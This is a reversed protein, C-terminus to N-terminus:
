KEYRDKILYMATNRTTKQMIEDEYYDNMIIKHRQKQLGLAEIKNGWIIKNM